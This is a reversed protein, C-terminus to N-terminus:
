FRRYQLVRLAPPCADGVPVVIPLEELWLSAASVRQITAALTAIARKPDDVSSKGPGSTPPCVVAGGPLSTTARTTAWIKPGVCPGLAVGGGGGANSGLVTTGGDV